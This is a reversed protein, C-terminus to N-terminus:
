GIGSSRGKSCVRLFISFIFQYLFFLGHNLISHKFARILTLRNFGRCYYYKRFCESVSQSVSQPFLIVQMLVM